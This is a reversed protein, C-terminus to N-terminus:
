LDDLNKNLEKELEKDLYIIWGITASATVNENKDMNIDYQLAVSDGIWSFLMEDEDVKTAEGYTDVYLWLLNEVNSKGNIDLIILFLTGDYFKAWVNKLDVNRIKRYNDGIILCWGDETCDYIKSELLKKSTGFKLDKYGFKEDLYNISQAVISNSSSLIQIFLFLLIFIIKRHEM